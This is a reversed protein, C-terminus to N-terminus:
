QEWEEKACACECFTYRMGSIARTSAPITVPRARSSGAWQRIRIAGRSTRVSCLTTAPTRSDNSPKSPNTHGAVPTSLPLPGLNLLAHEPWQPLLCFVDRLYSLPEISFLQCSALFVFLAGSEPHLDGFAVLDRLRMQVLM